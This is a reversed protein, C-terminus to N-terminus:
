DVLYAIKEMMASRTQPDNLSPQHSNTYTELTASPSITTSTTSSSSNRLFTTRARLTRISSQGVKLQLSAVSRVFARTESHSGGLLYYLGHARTDLLSLKSTSYCSPAMIRSGAGFSVSPFVTKRAKQNSLSLQNKSKDMCTATSHSSYTFCTSLDSCGRHRTERKMSSIKRPYPVKM